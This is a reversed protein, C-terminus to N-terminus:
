LCAPFPANTDGIPRSQGPLVVYLLANAGRYTTIETAAADAAAAATMFIDSTTNAVAV